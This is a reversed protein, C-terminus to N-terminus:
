TYEVSLELAANLAGAMKAALMMSGYLDRDNVNASDLIAEAIPHDIAHAGCARVVIFADEWTGGFGGQEEPVLVKTLGADEIQAWDPNAALVRETTDSLLARLESM